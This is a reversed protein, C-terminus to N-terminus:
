LLLKGTCNVRTTTENGSGSSSEDVFGELCVCVGNICEANAICSYGDSDLSYGDDCECKQGVLTNICTQDCGGNNIVCENYDTLSLCIHLM